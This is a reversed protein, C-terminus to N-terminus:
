GKLVAVGRPALRVERVPRSPDTLLDPAAHPLDVIVPETGHNLLFLYASEAGHRVVAQVGAPATIVPTVGAEACVRGLVPGPEPRTGAYWAVGDGFAHRTIAPRGALDGSTFTAIAAAGELEIWEAWITGSDTTGDAFELSVSGDLPWFEDVRLGLVDRLPAPHGGLYARDCGDVIGSFYSVLLHGGGAVYARLNDAVPRELLYLNPVVVLKYRSLDRSPHVVDCTINADFLPAYHALHTELQELSAPHSDLELGWWSPWDHLLAVEARVRTGALEPVRALERGLASTERFTRTERGGHPVMASHFKEAGGSTQRWQFFLVADAGQAIAQWSGLRMAGPPKPSNRSRWNVASPAQELLLWPQDKTSRVLDYAFAAEVHARPDYPDPYSDLSVVDEHPTWTHWDLAKQVLGVFNTTIPVDPTVRRLVRQETLFCGLLADSSFRHFDLQQAPNPFTPAVRPPLIEDWSSYRQSWFTTTWASNLEDLTGYREELWRRFDAASEDCYCARIHCGFENGVHWMALAPHGAYRTALETVLRSAHARYVPSSPCFQQRAGPSLRVGDARVPLIEPHRHSLWPPPSATMTALCVRIGAGALGALVGDFWGFDYEGPRPEVAAWSYIGATVMTVGAEAMLELDERRVEASWHEPNYDAGYRIM